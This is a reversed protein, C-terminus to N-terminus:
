TGTKTETAYGHCLTSNLRQMELENQAGDIWKAYTRLFIEISHGMQTACFAPTMGAMLMATAYSHRMNYPRRYRIGLLKLTPQWYSRRFAREEVWPTNYRPDLFVEKDALFTHAKQRIIAEKARENLYILRSKATKTTKKAKGRVMASTILITGSALDVNPWSLAFIESTRLGTWFWFQVMNAIQDPYRDRVSQSITDSEDRSFPDPVQRQYSARPVDQAPNTELLNENVAFELAQRLVSVYNNITKGSLDPRAATTRLIDGLTLRRLAKGPLANAWFGVASAYGCKTSYEARITKMWGNLHSELTIVDGVDGETPFYEAMVFMGLRIKERIEAALREAYQVNAPTPELSAGNLVLRKHYQQGDWTFTIRISKERVTVGKRGM